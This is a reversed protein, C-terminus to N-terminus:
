KIYIDFLSMQGAAILVKRATERRNQLHEDADYALHCAQCAAKLNILRCDGKDHKDGPSGNSHPVGLHM